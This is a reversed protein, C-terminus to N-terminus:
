GSLVIPGVSVALRRAGIPQPLRLAFIVRIPVIRVMRGTALGDIIFDM